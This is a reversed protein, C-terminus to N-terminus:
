ASVEFLNKVRNQIDNNFLQCRLEELYSETSAIDMTCLKQPKPIVSTNSMSLLLDSNLHVFPAPHDSMFTLDRELQVAGVLHLLLNQFVYIYDITLSSSM